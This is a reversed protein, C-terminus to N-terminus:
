NESVPKLQWTNRPLMSISVWTSQFRFLFPCLKAGFKWTKPPAGRGLRHERSASGWRSKPLQSHSGSRFFLLERGKHKLFNSIRFIMFFRQRLVHTLLAINRFTSTLYKTQLVDLETVTRGTLPWRVNFIFVAVKILFKISFIKNNSLKKSFLQIKLSVRLFINQPCIQCNKLSLRRVGFILM